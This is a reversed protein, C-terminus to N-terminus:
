LLRGQAEQRFNTGQKIAANSLPLANVEGGVILEFKAGVSCAYIPLTIRAHNVGGIYM